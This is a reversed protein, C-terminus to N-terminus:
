EARFRVRVPAAGPLPLVATVEDGSDLRNEAGQFNGFFFDLRRTGGPPVSIIPPPAAPTAFENFLPPSGVEAAEDALASVTVREGNHILVFNAAPVQLAQAGRNTLRVHLDQSGEAAWRGSVEATLREAVVRATDNPRAYDNRREGSVVAVGAEALPMLPGQPTPRSCSSSPASSLAAVIAFTRRLAGTM